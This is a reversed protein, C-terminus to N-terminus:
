VKGIRAPMKEIKKERILREAKGSMKSAGGNLGGVFSGAVCAM